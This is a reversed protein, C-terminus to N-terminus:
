RIHVLRPHVTKVLLCKLIASLRVHDYVNKYVIKGHKYNTGSVRNRRLQYLATPKILTHLNSGLAKRSRVAEARFENLIPSERYLVMVEPLIFTRIM